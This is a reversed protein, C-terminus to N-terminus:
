LLSFVFNRERDESWLSALLEDRLEEWRQRRLKQKRRRLMELESDSMGDDDSSEQPLPRFARPTVSDTDEAAAPSEARDWASVDSDFDAESSSSSEQRYNKPLGDCLDSRASFASSSSSISSSDFDSDSEEEPSDSSSSSHRRRKRALREEHIRGLLRPGPQKVHMFNCFGGRTCEGSEHQRCCADRFDAVPSLEAYIPQRAFWRRNLDDVARRAVSCSDFKIYVNGILHEAINECVKLEEVRGYKREIETFVEYFFAEFEEPSCEFEINCYSTPCQM